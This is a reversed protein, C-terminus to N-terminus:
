KQFFLLNAQSRTEKKLKEMLNVKKEIIGEKRFDFEKQQRGM